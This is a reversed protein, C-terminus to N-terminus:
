NILAKKKERSTGSVADIDKDVSHEPSAIYCDSICGRPLTLDAQRWLGLKKTTGHLNGNLLLYVNVSKSRIETLVSDKRNIFRHRILKTPM